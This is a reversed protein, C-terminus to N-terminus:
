AILGDTDHTLEQAADHSDRKWSRFSRVCEESELEQDIYAMLLDKDELTTMLGKLGGPKRILLQLAGLFQTVGQVVQARGAAQLEANGDKSGVAAAFLGPIIGLFGKLIETGHDAGEEQKTVQPSQPHQDNGMPQQSASCFSCAVLFLSVVRM